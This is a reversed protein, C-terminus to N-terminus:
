LGVVWCLDSEPEFGFKMGFIKDPSSPPSFGTAVSAHLTTVTQRILYSAAERWTWVDGFQNFHDFRGGSVFILNQCPQFTLQAFVGTENTHDSVFRPQPGFM